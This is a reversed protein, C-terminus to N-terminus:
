KGALERARKIDKGQTGKDGGCLLIVVASGEYVFYVRYGPGFDMRLEYLGGGVSKVDGPNGRELRRIRQVIRAYANANRLGNLWKGFEASYRVEIM